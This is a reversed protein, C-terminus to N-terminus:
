LNGHPTFVVCCWSIIILGIPFYCHIHNGGSKLAPKFIISYPGIGKAHFSYLFDNWYYNSCKGTGKGCLHKLAFKVGLCTCLLFSPFKLELWKCGWHSSLNTGLLLSSYILSTYHRINSRIIKINHFKNSQINYKIGSPYHTGFRQHSQLSRCRWRFDIM